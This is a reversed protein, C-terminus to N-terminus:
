GEGLLLDRCAKLRQSAEVLIESVADEMRGGVWECLTACQGLSGVSMHQLREAEEVSAGRELYARVARAAEHEPLSATWQQHLQQQQNRQHHVAASSPQSAPDPAAAADLHGLTYNYSWITLTAYYVIWPRHNLPDRRPSYPALTAQSGLVPAILVAHLFRFAHCVASRAQPSPAWAKMRQVVNAYDRGSVRRSVLRRSGSLIQCDLIDVNRGLHALHYLATGNHLHLETGGLTNAAPGLATTSGACIEEFGVNWSDFAGFLLSRWREQEDLPLPTKLWTLQTERDHMHWGVSLLGAMLIVRGFAHTKVDQGHLCRKLADLFYIPKIGYLRLSADLTQVTEPAAATWLIDDCPLQLHIEQPSMNAVHGFMVAHTIDTIFATFVVRQMSEAQIWQYWWSYSSSPNPVGPHSTAGSEFDDGPLHGPPTERGEKGILPAGRKLLTLTSAHHIHAREHLKRSSFMKEYLELLLLTQFVWLEAPSTADEETFIEWRLFSALLDAFAVYEGTDDEADLKHLTSTGLAIIAALLLIPCKNPSFTPRHLVPIQPSVHDWFASICNQLMSLSLKPGDGDLEADLMNMDVLIRQKKQRQRQRFSRALNLLEQRRSESMGNEFAGLGELHWGDLSQSCDPVSDRDTPSTQNHSFATGLAFALNSFDMDGFVGEADFLWSAFDERVPAYSSISNAQNPQEMSALGKRAMEATLGLTFPSQREKAVAPAGACPGPTGLSAHHMSAAMTALPDPATHVSPMSMTAMNAAARPERGPNCGSSDDQPLVDGIQM